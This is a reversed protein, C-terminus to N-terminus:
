GKSECRQPCGFRSRTAPALTRAPAMGDLPTRSPETRTADPAQPLVLRTRRRALETEAKTSGADAYLEYAHDLRAFANIVAVNTALLRLEPRFPQPLYAM